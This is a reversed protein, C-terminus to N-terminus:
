RVQCIREEVNSISVLLGLIPLELDHYRHASIPAVHYSCRAIRLSAWLHRLASAVAAPVQRLSVPAHAVKEHPSFRHSHFEHTPSPSNAVWAATSIKM